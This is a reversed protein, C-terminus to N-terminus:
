KPEPTSWPDGRLGVRAGAIPKGNSRGRRSRTSSIGPNWRGILFHAPKGPPGPTVSQRVPSRGTAGVIIEYGQWSEYLNDLVYRGQDDTTTRREELSSNGHNEVSASPTDAQRKRRPGRRRDFRRAAQPAAQHDGESRRARALADVDARVSPIGASPGRSSGPCEASHRRPPFARPRRDRAQPRAHSYSSGEERYGIRVGALPRGKEDTVVGQVVGGPAM